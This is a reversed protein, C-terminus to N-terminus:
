HYPSWRSRCEKGVRREESRPPLDRATLDQETPGFAILVYIGREVGNSRFQEEVFTRARYKNLPRVGPILFVTLLLALIVVFEAIVWLVRTRGPIDRRKALLNTGVALVAWPGFGILVMNFVFDVSETPNFLANFWPYITTAGNSYILPQESALLPAFIAVLFIPALLWLAYYAPRNRKFQRWVIDLYAEGQNSHSSM